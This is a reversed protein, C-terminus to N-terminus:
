QKGIIRLADIASRAVGSLARMKQMAQLFTKQEPRVRGKEAKVEIATFVPMEQGVMDPTITVMTAGFLDSFGKPLGTDLPRHDVLAIGRKIHYTRGGAILKGNNIPITQRGQWGKGVNARFYTGHDAIAIRVTNQIDSEKM